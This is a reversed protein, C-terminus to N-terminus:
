IQPSCTEKDTLMVENTGVFIIGTYKKWRTQEISGGFVMSNYSTHKQPCSYIGYVKEKTLIGRDRLDKTVNYIQRRAKYAHSRVKPPKCDKLELMVIWSIDYEDAVFLSGECHKIPKKLINQFDKDHYKVFEVKMNTPNHFVVSDMPMGTIPCVQNEGSVEISRKNDREKTRETFDAIYIDEHDYPSGNAMEARPHAKLILDKIM